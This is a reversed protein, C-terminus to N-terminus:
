RRGAFLKGIGIRDTECHHGRDLFDRRDRALPQVEDDPMVELISKELSTKKFREPVLRVHAFFGRQYYNAAHRDVPDDGWVALSFVRDATRRSVKRHRRAVEDGGCQDAHDAFVEGLLRDSVELGLLDVYWLIQITDIKLLYKLFYNIQSIFFLPNFQIKNEKNKIDTEALVAIDDVVGLQMLQKLEELYAWRNVPLTSGQIIRVDYKVENINM